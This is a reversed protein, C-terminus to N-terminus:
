NGPPYQAIIQIAGPDTPLYEGWLWSLSLNAIRSNYRKLLLAQADDQSLGALAQQVAQQGRKDLLLRWESEARLAVIDNSGTNGADTIAIQLSHVLAFHADFSSRALQHAANLLAGNVEQQDYAEVQCTSYATVTVSAAESGIAPQPSSTQTCILNNLLAEGPQLQAQFFKLAEQQAQAALDKAVPDVDTAAVVPGNYDDQGGTFPAPNTLYASPNTTETSDPLFGWRGNFYYAPVNGASGFGLHAPVNYTSGPMLISSDDFTLQLKDPLIIIGMKSLDIEGSLQSFVITGHADVIGVDKINQVQVTKTRTSTKYTLTRGRIHESALNTQNSVTLFYSQYLTQSQPTITVTATSAPLVRHLFILSLILVLCLLAIGVRQNISLRSFRPRFANGAANTRAKGPVPRTASQQQRLVELRARARQERTADARREREERVEDAPCWEIERCHPCVPFLDYPNYRLGRNDRVQTTGFLARCCVCYMLLYEQDGKKSALVGNRELDSVEEATLHYTRGQLVFQAPSAPVFNPFIFLAEATPRSAGDAQNSSLAPDSAASMTQATGQTLLADFAARKQADSLIEYAQEIALFRQSTQPDSNIDPHYIKALARFAKKIEQESADSSIGLVEYYNIFSQM